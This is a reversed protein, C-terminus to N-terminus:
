ASWLLAWLPLARDQIGFGPENHLSMCNLWRVCGTQTQCHHLFTNTRASPGSWILCNCGPYFWRRQGPNQHCQEKLENKSSKWCSGKLSWSYNLSTHCRTAPATTNESTQTSSVLFHLLGRIRGFCVMQWVYPHPFNVSPSESCLARSKRQSFFPFFAKIFSTAGAARERKEYVEKVQIDDM